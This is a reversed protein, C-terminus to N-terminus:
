KKNSSESVFFTGPGIPTKQGGQVIRMIENKAFTLTLLPSEVLEAFILLSFESIGLFFVAPCKLFSLYCSMRLLVMTLLTDAGLM